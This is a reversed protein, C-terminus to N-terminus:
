KARPPVLEVPEQKMKQGCIPCNKVRVLVKGEISRVIFKHGTCLVYLENLTKM